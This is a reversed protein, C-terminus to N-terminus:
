STVIRVQTRDRWADPDNLEALSPMPEPGDWVRNLAEIGGERVVADCFDKGVEYQRLKMELGLIRELLRLPTSRTQRRRNLASRLADLSPLVDKGVADMVHEAHGEIVAMTAQLTDLLEKRRGRAVLAVLGGERVAEVLARLDSLSPLRSLAGADVSVEVDELLERLLGAVHPRLWGVSGFQVAHTVEHFAVWRTLEDLDVELASAAHALNPAVFLLRAPSEPDLLAVEYQGMVRQSMYGTIAGVQASVLMGTVARLAPPTPGKETVRDTIPDLIPKMGALNTAAWAHRDVVEPAPVPKQPQLGTYAVVRERADQAVPALDLLAPAAPPEQAVFGAVREALKWDIM